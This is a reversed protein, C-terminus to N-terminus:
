TEGGYMYVLRPRVGMYWGLDWEWVLRPRVGM